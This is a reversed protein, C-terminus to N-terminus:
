YFCVAGLELSFKEGRRTSGAVAIDRIPLKNLNSSSFEFVAERWAGDFTTCEDKIMNLRNEKVVNNSHLEKRNYSMVKINAPSNKCSYTVNQRGKQSKLRLTKWQSVSPAYVVKSDEVEESIWNYKGGRKTSMEKVDLVTTPRVCTEVKSGTFDCHVEFADYNDGGNPDIWYKGTKSEPICMQIDKCSEAPYKRSGDPRLATDVRADLVDLLDFMNLYAKGKVKEQLSKYYTQHFFRDYLDVPTKETTPYQELLRKL